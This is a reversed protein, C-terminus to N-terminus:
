LINSHRKYALLTKYTTIQNKMYEVLVNRRRIAEEKPTRKPLGFEEFVAEEDHYYKAREEEPLQNIKEMEKISELLLEKEKHMNEENGFFFMEEFASVLFKVLGYSKINVEDVQYGLIENRESFEYGYSSPLTFNHLIEDLKETSLNDVDAIDPLVISVLDCDFIEQKKFLRAEPRITDSDIIDCGLLVYDTELIDRSILDAFIEKLRVTAADVTVAKGGDEQRSLYEEAFKEPDVVAFLDQLIM